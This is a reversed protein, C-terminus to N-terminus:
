QALGPISGADEHIRVLSGCHSSGAGGKIEQRQSGLTLGIRELGNKANDVLTCQKRTTVNGNQQVCM